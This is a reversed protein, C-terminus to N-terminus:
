DPFPSVLVSLQLGGGIGIRHGPVERFRQTHLSLFATQQALRPICPVTVAMSNLTGQESELLHMM